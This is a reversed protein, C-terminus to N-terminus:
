NDRADSDAPKMKWALFVAFLLFISGGELAREPWPAADDVPSLLGVILVPSMFLFWFLTRFAM